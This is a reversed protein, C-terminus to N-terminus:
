LYLLSLLFYEKTEVEGLLLKEESMAVTVLKKHTYGKLTVTYWYLGLINKRILHISYIKYKELSSRPTSLSNYLKFVNPNM